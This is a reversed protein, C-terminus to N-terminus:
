THLCVKSLTHIYTGRIGGYTHTHTRTHPINDANCNPLQQMHGNFVNTSSFFFKKKYQYQQFLIQGNYEHLPSFVDGVRFAHQQRGLSGKKFSKLIPVLWFINCIGIGCGWLIPVLLHISLPLRGHDGIRIVITRQSTHDSPPNELRPATTLSHSM